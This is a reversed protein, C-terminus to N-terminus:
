VVKTTPIFPTAGYRGVLYGKLIDKDKRESFEALSYLSSSGIDPNKETFWIQDRRFRDQDLLLLDHTNFILQAGNKNQEPDHFLDILWTSIKHHLKSDLEDIILTTGTSLADLIPGIVTFLRKTGESELSYHLSISKESGNQQRITHKFKLENAKITESGALTMMGIFQQPLQGRLENVPVDRFKGEMGIIGLDAIQLAQVIMKRFNGDHNMKDVTLELIQQANMSTDMVFMNNLFWEYAPTTGEYAFQVSTSFYLANELTRRSIVEQEKKDKTFDFENGNRSYITAKKGNPYHYLSEEVIRDKNYSLKFDYLIDRQIFSILFTTPKNNCSPDFAFPQYYLKDGKQHTHSGTIFNRLLAIANVLNSKGSANPGYIAASNVLSEDKLAGCKTINGRLSKDPSALMSLTVKDRFSRFNEVSFEVLM